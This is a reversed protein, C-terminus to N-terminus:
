HMTRRTFRDFYRAMVARVHPPYNLEDMQQMGEAFFQAAHDPFFRALEEFVEEMLEPNHSRTAVIGRNLNLVLWPRGPNGKELDQKILKSSSRVIRTMFRTLAELQEPERTRNAYHALADVIPELTRIEGEHRVIWDTFSLVVSDFDRDFERLELQQAWTMLDTLLTLGYDGLQSVDDSAIPGTEGQERDVKTSIAFFQDIGADLQAPTVQHTTAPRRAEYAGLVAQAAQKYRRAADALSVAVPNM